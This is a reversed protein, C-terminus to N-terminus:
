EGPRFLERLAEKPDTPDVDVYRVYFLPVLRNAASDDLRLLTIKVGVTFTSVMLAVQEESLKEDMVGAVNEFGAEYFRWVDVFDPVLFLGLSEYDVSAVARHLNYSAPKSFTGPM